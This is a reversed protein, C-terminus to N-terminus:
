SNTSSSKLAWSYTGDGTITGLPIEVTTGATNASTSGLASGVPLPRSTYTIGTETWPKDEIKFASGGDPGPDTVFLRLKVTASQNPELGTVSFKFYSLYEPSGARLRLDAAAGYNGNPSGSNVKADATPTFTLAGGGGGGGGSTVTITSNATASGNANTATLAVTFTGASAYTHSPSQATSAATGDGFSWSWSTPNGTSTDTFQVALPAQGTTPNATFSATPATNGGGGGGSPPLYAHWYRDTTDNTALAVLGSTSDVTQKTSTVNNIDDETGGTGDTMVATGKGAPFSINSLPASKMYISGGSEPATAFMYVKEDGAQSTGKDLMVIPRTHADKKLGFTYSKWKNMAPDYELLLNLPDN